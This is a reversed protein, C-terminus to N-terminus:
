VNMLVMEELEDIELALLAERREGDFIVTKEPYHRMRPFKMRFDVDMINEISDILQHKIPIVDM